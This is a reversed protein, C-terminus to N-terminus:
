GLVNCCDHSEFESDQAVAMIVEVRLGLSGLPWAYVVWGM